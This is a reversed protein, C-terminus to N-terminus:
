YIYYDYYQYGGTFSQCYATAEDRESSSWYPAATSIGGISDRVAYIQALEDKSPLYWDDFDGLTLDDCLKVADDWKKSSSQDSPAIILGHAGTNDIFAVKGGEHAQGITFESEVPPRTETSDDTASDNCSWLMATAPLLLFLYNRM